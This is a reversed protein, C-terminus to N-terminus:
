RKAHAQARLLEDCDSTHARMRADAVGAYAVASLATFELDLVQVSQLLYSFSLLSCMSVLTIVCGRSGPEVRAVCETCFRNRASSGALDFAAVM